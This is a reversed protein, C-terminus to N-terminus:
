IWPLRHSKGKFLSAKQKEYTMSRQKDFGHDFKGKFKAIWEKSAQHPAHATGPTYYAFFPKRPSVTKQTQIWRIAHDALDVNSRITEIGNDSLTIFVM